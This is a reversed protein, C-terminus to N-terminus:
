NLSGYGEPFIIYPYSVGGKHRIKFNGKYILKGKSDYYKGYIPYSPGYYTTRTGNVKDNFIGDFKLKGSRYYEKGVLLGARQFHGERYKNGNEFYEIGEILEFPEKDPVGNTDDAYYTGEFRLKGSPYYLKGNAKRRSNRITNGHSSRWKYSQLLDLQPEYRDKKKHDLLEFLEGPKLPKENVTPISEDKYKCFWTKTEPNVYIFDYDLNDRGHPQSQEFGRVHLRTAVTARYAPHCAPIDELTILYWRGEEENM